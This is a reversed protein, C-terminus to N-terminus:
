SERVKKFRLYRKIYKNNPDKIAHAIMKRHMFDPLKSRKLVTLSYALLYEPSESIVKEGEAFRGKILKAAYLLSSEKCTAIKKEAEPWTKKLFCCAYVASAIPSQKVAEEYEPFRSLEEKTSLLGFLLWANIMQQIKDKFQEPTAFPSIPPGVVHNKEDVVNFVVSIADM